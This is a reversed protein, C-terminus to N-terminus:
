ADDAPKQAAGRVIAELDDESLERVTHIPGGAKGTHEIKQAAEWGMMKALQQVAQTRSHTKFKIGDRGASLESIAAMKRPDQLASPKLRWVSQIVANGENDVGLEHSGFDVLDQVGTRALDSLLELAENRTMVAKSVAEEKMADLFASVKADSLMRSAIADITAEDEATGGATIYAARQTMGSLVNTAVRQQLATLQDFLFKQAPTMDIGLPDCYLSAIDRCVFLTKTKRDNKAGRCRLRQRRSPEQKETLSALGSM